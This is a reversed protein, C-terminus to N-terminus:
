IEEGDKLSYLEHINGDPDAFFATVRGWSMLKPPSIPLAGYAVIKDYFDGVLNADTIPFALEFRQGSKGELYSPHGTADHMVEDTTLAFRVGPSRFEVYGELEEVCEFGLTDEYFSKMESLRKTIITILGIRAM